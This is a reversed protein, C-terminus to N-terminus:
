LWRQAPVGPIEFVTGCSGIGIIRYGKEDSHKSRARNLEEAFSFSKSVVFQVSLARRLMISRTKSSAPSKSKQKLTLNKTSLQPLNSSSLNLFNIASILDRLCPPRIQHERSIDRQNNLYLRNYMILYILLYSRIKVTLNFHPVDTLCFHLALSYKPNASLRFM